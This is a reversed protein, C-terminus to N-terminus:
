VKIVLGSNDVLLEYIGCTMIPTFNILKHNKKIFNLMNVETLVIKSKTSGHVCYKLLQQQTFKSFESVNMNNMMARACMELNQYKSPVYQLALSNQNVALTFIAMKSELSHYYNDDWHKLVMGDNEVAIRWLEYNSKNSYQIFPPWYEIGQKCAMFDLNNIEISKDLRHADIVLRVDRLRVHEIAKPANIIAIKCLDYTQNKVYKISFGNNEVALKCLEPTQKKVYQLSAGNGKLAKICIKNTQTLVFQLVLPDISVAEFYVQESQEKAYELLWPDEKIKDLMINDIIIDSVDKKTTKKLKYYKKVHDKYIKDVYQFAKKNSLVAELCINHNQDNVFKLALGNSRVAEVCLEKTQNNIFKLVIGNSKVAAMCVDISPDKINNLELPRNIVLKILDTDVMVINISM